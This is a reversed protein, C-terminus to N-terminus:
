LYLEMKVDATSFPSNKPEIFKFGYKEYLKLATTLQSNSYLFVKKANLKKAEMLCHDMLLRSIGRGRYLPDVAMKILEYSEEDEKWLGATGVIKDGIKVLYIKGGGGIVTGQPDDLIELDHSEVLGYHELWEMNLQKFERQYNSTFPIIQPM